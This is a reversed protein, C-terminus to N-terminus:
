PRNRRKAVASSRTDDILGAELGFPLYDDFLSEINRMRLREAAEAFAGMECDGEGGSAIGEAAMPHLMAVTPEGLDTDLFLPTVGIAAASREAPTLPAGKREAAAAIALDPQCRYRRPLASGPAIASYRVCGAQTRVATAAGTFIVNTAELSKFLSEGFVTVGTLRADIDGASIAPLTAGDASVISGTVALSGSGKGPAYDLRVRGLISRFVVIDADELPATTTLAAGGPARVTCYRLTLRSVARIGLSVGGTVELGDLVVVGPAVGAPPASPATVRMAGEVTFRREKRVVYGHRAPDGVIGPGTRKERWQASVIHLESGAHATVAVETAPAAPGERDCRVLVILGRTGAGHQNWDALATALLGVTRVQDGAAGGAAATADVIRVFHTLKDTDRIDFPTDADNRDQPGAGIERGIGYAYAVRVEEIDPDGSAPAAVILRGTVPDFGCAIDRPETKPAPQPTGNEFWKYTKTAAPRAGAPSPMAELNAILLEAAPVRRFDASGAARTFVTFPQGADDFWPMAALAPARGAAGARRLEETELHLPLRKLRDRLAPEVVRGPGNEARRDPNFLRLVGGPQAALQFYGPRLTTGDRWPAAAPVGALAAAPLVDGAPAPFAPVAPRLLHVGVNPVHHRGAARAISRLDALRPLADFATATRAATEGPVLFATGPREPRVDILHQTRALRMFYEVAVAGFGGVDAALAELVRATGKGRRYGLTNAIYPRQNHGAGEPLPRLAEAAVLAAFDDLAAQPATDVFLSDHLVDIEADVEAYGGALVRFLAKLADGRAADVSRIHAPLLGYLRETMAEIRAQSPATM